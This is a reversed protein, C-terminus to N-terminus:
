RDPNWLWIQVNASKKFEAFTVTPESGKQSRTVDRERYIDCHVRVERVEEGANQDEIDKVFKADESLPCHTSCM